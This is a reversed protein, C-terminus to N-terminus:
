GHEGGGTRSRRVVEGTSPSSPARGDMDSRKSLSVPRADCAGYLTAYVTDLVAEMEQLVENNWFRLVRFGKAQLYKTRAADKARSKDWGHQDGDVEIILRARMCAFDAVYPGVPVQKRFHTDITRIRSLHRWLKAEPGTLRKRLARARVVTPDPKPAASMDDAPRARSAGERGEVPLTAAFRGPPTFAPKASFSAM